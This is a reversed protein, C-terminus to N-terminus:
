ELILVIKLCFKLLSNFYCNQPFIFQMVTLFDVLIEETIKLMPLVMDQSLIVFLLNDSVWVLGKWQYFHKFGNVGFDLMNFFALVFNVWLFM